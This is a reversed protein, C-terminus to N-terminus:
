QIGVGIPMKKYCITASRWLDQMGETFCIENCLALRHKASKSFCKFSTCACRFSHPHPILWCLICSGPVATFSKPFNHNTLCMHYRVLYSFFILIFIKCCGTNTFTFIHWFCLNLLYEAHCPSFCIQLVLNNSGPIVLKKIILYPPWLVFDNM